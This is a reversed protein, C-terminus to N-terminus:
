DVIRLRRMKIPNNGTAASTKTARKTAALGDVCTSPTRAAPTVRRANMLTVGCPMIWLVCVPLEFASGATGLIASLRTNPGRPVVSQCYSSWVAIAPPTEISALLTHPAHSRLPARRVMCAIVPLPVGAHLKEDKPLPLEPTAAAFPASRLPNMSDFATPSSKRCCPKVDLLLPLGSQDNGYGTLSGFRGALELFTAVDRSPEVM